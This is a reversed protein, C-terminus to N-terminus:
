AQMDIFADVKKLWHQFEYNVRGLDQHAFPELKCATTEKKWAEFDLGGTMSDWHHGGGM